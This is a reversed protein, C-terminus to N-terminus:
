FTVPNTKMYKEVYGDICDYIANRFENQKSFAASVHGANKIVRIQCGPWIDPLAAIGDRRIYADNEAIVACILSTDFPIDYNKLHTCEDMVGRMFSVTERHLPDETTTGDNRIIKPLMYQLKPFEECNKKSLEPSSDVFIKTQLSSLLPLNLNELISTYNPSSKKNVKDVEEKTLQKTIACKEEIQKNEQNKLINDSLITSDKGMKRYFEANKQEEFQACRDMQKAFDVGLIWLLTRIMIDLAWEM